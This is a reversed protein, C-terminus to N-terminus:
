TPKVTNTAGAANFKDIDEQLLKIVTRALKLEMLANRLQEKM